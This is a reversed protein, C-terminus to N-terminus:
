LLRSKYRVNLIGRTAKSLTNAPTAASLAYRHRPRWGSTVPFSSAVRKWFNTHASRCNDRPTPLSATSLYQLVIAVEANSHRLSTELDTAGTKPGTCRRSGVDSYRARMSPCNLLTPNGPQTPHKSKALQSQFFQGFDMCSECKTLSPLRCKSHLNNTVEVKMNPM